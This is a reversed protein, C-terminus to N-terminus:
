RTFSGMLGEDPLLEGTDERNEPKTYFAPVYSRFEDGSRTVEVTGINEFWEKIMADPDTICRYWEDVDYVPEGMFSGYYHKHKEEGRPAGCANCNGRMDDPSNSHCFACPHKEPESELTCENSWQLTNNTSGVITYDDENYTVYPGPTITMGREDIVISGYSAM